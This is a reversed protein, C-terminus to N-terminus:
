PKLIPEAHDNGGREGQFVSRRFDLRLHPRSQPLYVVRKGLGLQIPFLDYARTGLGLGSQRMQALTGRRPKTEPM